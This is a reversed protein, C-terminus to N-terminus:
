QDRLSAIVKAAIQNIEAEVRREVIAPLNADIWEKIIPQMLSSVMGEITNGGATALGVPAAPAPQYLPKAMAAERKPEPTTVVPGAYSPATSTGIAEVESLLEEFSDESDHFVDDREVQAEAAIDESLKSLPPLEVSGTMDVDQTDSFDLGDGNLLQDVSLLHDNENQAELRDDGLLESVDFADDMEADFSDNDSQQALVSTDADKGEPESGESIIRRISALIEEMTPEKTAQEAM